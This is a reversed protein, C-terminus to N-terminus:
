LALIHLTKTQKGTKHETNKNNKNQKTKHKPKNLKTNKTTNHKKKNQKTQKLKTNKNQLVFSYLATLFIKQETYIYLLIILYKFIYM